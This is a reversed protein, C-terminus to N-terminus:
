ACRGIKSVLLVAAFHADSIVKNLASRFLAPQKSQAENARPEALVLVIKGKLAPAAARLEDLTRAELLAVEGQVPGGTGTTWGKQVIALAQGNASLLRARAM